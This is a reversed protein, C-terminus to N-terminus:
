LQNNMMRDIVDVIGSDSVSKTVLDAVKKLEDVSNGMAIRFGAHEFLPLDNMNDGIAVIESKNLKLYDILFEVATAKSVQNSNIDIAYDGEKIPNM